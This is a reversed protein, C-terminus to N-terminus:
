REGLLEELHREFVERPFPKSLLNWPRIAEREHPELIAHYASMFILPVDRLEPDKRLAAALEIGSMNPMMVDVAAADPKKERMAALAEKGDHATVTDYRDQLWIEILGCLARDDDVILVRQRRKGV